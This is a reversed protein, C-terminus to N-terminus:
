GAAFQFVRIALGLIGACAVAAFAVFTVGVGILGIAKRDDSDFMRSLSLAHLRM